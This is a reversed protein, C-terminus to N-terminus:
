ARMREKKFDGEFQGSRVFGDDMRISFWPIGAILFSSDKANKIGVITGKQGKNFGKTFIVRDGVKYEETM